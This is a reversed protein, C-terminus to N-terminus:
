HCPNEIKTYNVDYISKEDWMKCLFEYFQIPDFIILTFKEDILSNWGSKKSHILASKKKPLRLIDTIQREKDNLAVEIGSFKNDEIFSLIKGDTM